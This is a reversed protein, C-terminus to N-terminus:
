ELYLQRSNKGGVSSVTKPSFRFHCRIESWSLEAYTWSYLNMLFSFLYPDLFVFCIDQLPKLTKLWQLQLNCLEAQVHRCYHKLVAGMRTRITVWKGVLCTFWVFSCLACLPRYSNVRVSPPFFFVCLWVLSLSPSDTGVWTSLPKCYCKESPVRLLIVMKLFFCM